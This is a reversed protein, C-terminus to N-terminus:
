RNKLINLISNSEREIISGTYTELNSHTGYWTEYGGNTFANLTPIYGYAGNTQEIVMTHKFLSKGKINIGYEHFLEGPSSVIAFDNGIKIGTMSFQYDPKAAKMQAAFSEKYSDLRAPEKLSIDDNAFVPNDRNKIRTERYEVDLSLEKVESLSGLSSIIKSALTEGLAKKNPNYVPNINGSAGTLFFTEVQSGLQAKIVRRVDGPFDASIVPESNTTAHSAYNYIVARLVGKSNRVALIQFEPDFPGEAPYRGMESPKLDWINWASNNKIVRRNQALYKGASTGIQLKAPAFSKVAIDVANAISDVLRDPYYTWHPGSHTHSACIIINSAPIGTRQEILERAKLALDYPYKLLDITIIAVRKGNLNLVLAKVYLRSEITNVPMAHTYGITVVPGTPTIDVTGIGVKYTDTNLIPIATTSNTSTNTPISVTGSSVLEVSSIEAAFANQKVFVFLVFFSIACYFIARQYSYFIKFSSVSGGNM